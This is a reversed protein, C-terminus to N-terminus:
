RQAQSSLAHRPVTVANFLSKLLNCTLGPSATKAYNDWESTLLCKYM